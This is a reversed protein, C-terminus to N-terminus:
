MTPVTVPVRNVLAVKMATWAVPAMAIMTDSTGLMRDPSSGSVARNVRDMRVPTIMSTAPRSLSPERSRQTDFATMTPKMLATPTFMM